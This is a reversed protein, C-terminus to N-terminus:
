DLIIYNAGNIRPLLYYHSKESFLQVVRLKIRSVRGSFLDVFKFVLQLVVLIAILQFAKLRNEGAQEYATLLFWTYAGILGYIAPYAGILVGQGDVALAYGLAGIGASGFFIILVAATAYREAVFKGMALLLVAGFVAHMAEYHIFPYTVFRWIGDVPYTANRLMWEFFRDSFGFTSILTGRLSETPVNPLLGAGQMQSAIEVLAIIVVLIVVVPPISNFPSANHNPDHM